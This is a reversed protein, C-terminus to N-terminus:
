SKAWTKFTLAKHWIRRDSEYQDAGSDQRQWRQITTGYGTQFQQYNLLTEVRDAIQEVEVESLRSWMSIQMSIVKENRPNTYTNESIHHVTILPFLTSEPAIDVGEPYVRQAVFSQITADNKLTDITSQFISLM